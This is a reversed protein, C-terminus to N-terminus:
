AEKHSLEKLLWARALRWDRMVTDPSVGIVEATEKVGLGGFFRLEVVKAKRPDIEALANLADDLELVTHNAKSTLNVAEAISVERAKGGRKQFARSRAIDVLIRRMVHASVGFFHARDQWRVQKVKVLRLYAENVLATTQLTREARERAMFSHALRRLEDYVLPMLRDLAQKDGGSWARLLESVEQSALRAVACGKRRACIWESKLVIIVPDAVTVQSFIQWCTTNIPVNWERFIRLLTRTKPRIERM